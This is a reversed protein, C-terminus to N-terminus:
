ERKLWKKLWGKNKFREKRIRYIMPIYHFFATVFRLRFSFYTKPMIQECLVSVGHPVDCFEAIDAAKTVGLWKLLRIPCLLIVAFVDAEYEWWTLEPNHSHAEIILSIHDLILHALEHAVVMRQMQRSLSDDVFIIKKNEFEMYFGKNYKAYEHLDLIDFIEAAGSYPALEINYFKAVQSLSVPFRDIGIQRYVPYVYM